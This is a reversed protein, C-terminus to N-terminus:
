FRGIYTEEASFLEGDKATLVRVEQERGDLLITLRIGNWSESDTRFCLLQEKPEVQAGEEPTRIRIVLRKGGDEDKEEGATMDRATLERDQGPLYLVYEDSDQRYLWFATDRGEGQANQALHDGCATLWRSVDAEKRDKEGMLRMSYASPGGSQTYLANWAGSARQASNPAITELMAFIGVVGAFLAALLVLWFWLPKEKQQTMNEEM